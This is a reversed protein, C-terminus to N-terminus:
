AGDPHGVNVSKAASSNGMYQGEREERGEYDGRCQRRTRRARRPEVKRSRQAGQWRECTM